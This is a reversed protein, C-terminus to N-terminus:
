VVARGLATQLANIANHLDLVETPSLSDTIWYGSFPGACWQVPSGANNRAMVYWPIAISAPTVSTAVNQVVSGNVYYDISTSSSRDVHSSGIPVQGSISPGSTKGFRAIYTTTTQQVFFQDTGDNAGMLSRASTNPIISRLYFGFAGTAATSQVGIDIYKNSTNGTIGTSETYDGSVLNVGTASTFTFNGAGDGVIAVLAAQLNSGIIPGYMRIKNLIGATRCQRIFTDFASASTSSLTGGASIIASELGQTIRDLSQVPSTMPFGFPRSLGGGQWTLLRRM